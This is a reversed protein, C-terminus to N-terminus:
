KNAACPSRILALKSPAVGAWASSVAARSGKTEPLPNNKNGLVGVRVLNRGEDLWGGVPLKNSARTIIADMIIM